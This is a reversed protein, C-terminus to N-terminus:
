IAKRTLEQSVALSYMDSVDQTPNSLTDTSASNSISFSNMAQILQDANSIDLTSGDHFEITEVKSSDYRFHDNIQIGKIEDGNISIKLNNGIKEFSLDSQSIGEGFVIKDNGGAETITDFGDGLNYIYTDDGNGGNLYDNGIGGILTDNGEGANITDHGGNGYIVDNHSTGNVTDDADTQQLTLGQTSLNFTSGDAFQLTEVQYNTGRYFDDILISQSVDDNITIRLDNGEQTFKLDDLAIGTGFKIKDNGRTESITDIGDGLNYIYTDRGYGGNLTDNGKGGTIVDDDDGANITDNGSGGIITDDYDTGNITMDDNRDSQDLTLGTESLYFVSNDAFHIEGIKCSDSSFFSEIIIGQDKDGNLYILLNNDIQTFSLNNQAIGEGFVIKNSGANDYITDLGDGLNYVYTDNDGGGDLTDNGAGGILVDDGYNGNITDNGGNGYITENSDTGNVTENGNGQQLTIDMQPLLKVSGDAFHLEELPNGNYYNLINIGQSTDGKITIILSYGNQTFTLDEPLIGTGFIIKDNGSTDSITDFGDGLNYFYTDNGSGANLTDNGKGGHIINNGNGANITDNGDGANITDSGDGANITVSYTNQANIIDDFSTGNITDGKSFQQDLTLGLAALNLSSGDAFCVHNLKADSNYLFNVLIIGQTEDNNIIIRLNNGESRFTLSDKTIGEGFQLKDINSATITDLDDGLNWIFTDADTGGDITDNGKGGVITDTGRGGSITDDGDEGYIIDNGDGGSITNNGKGGYITDAYDTGSISESRDGHHIILGSQQLSYVSGDAFIINEPKNNNSYFYDRCIVGQTMDGKVVIRLNNGEAYFTLDEFTIGEGFKLHDVDSFTVTDMDDGLNWIITDEGVGGDITDDGKGGNIIDAGKGGDIVDRGFGGYITDNYSTGDITNDKDTGQLVLGGKSLNITSGDAFELQEIKKDDNYFHQLIRISDNDNNSFSIFLDDGNRQFILDSSSIGEGFIIKDRGYPDSIVDYGDGLNYYYTDKDYGGNLTDNGKGGTIDNYGDGANITDNGNGGTLIDDDASGEIVQDPLSVLNGILDAVSVESGDAFEITGIKYGDNNYYNEIILGQSPDNNVIIRLNNGVQAFSLEAQTIDAGFKIKNTGQYDSITDIGDNLNWVYTDDGSGGELRDHGAGGSLIDNGNGGYLTDNGGNGYIVDDYDTGTITEACNYQDFTLGMESLNKTTGDAFELQEIRYNGDSIFNNIQIAKTKDDSLFILLSNNDGNAFKLDTFSIGEGFKIKDNGSSDSIIDYGDGLNYIYTDDGAGGNLTDNGIGGILADNGNQGNLTDNGTGGYITDNGSGANVTDDGGNAYIVDDYNTGTITESGDHQQFTLGIQTLDVTSGDAFELTEIGYSGSFYNNIKFGQTKDENVYVTLNNNDNEFSLDEFSIGEGFKIKDTGSSDSITDFGDGLNYIYIDNGSGGDLSDNGKGGVLTDNDGQGNLTDNGNGGYIADNGSGANVTDNGGNAYIVDDYATGTITESGDHQQFTLGIQTLDVTSGDAFELIEITYNSGYFYNNLQLGQTKDGNVYIILNNGSNEFSLDEFSIGEGFKIKDERGETSSSQYDSITDFGDGLNWVYTDNGYGGDLSDNGTGGTLIDNGSQGNLTDDGTGGYIIDNGNGANVTDNGGDAYIVDDYATGTITESGDHQQFTLGIQTLDVTSGDAFELIEITYNSGYFYNNLQLGQTKDGNVYIILNNGSNEFSLDEFSIGEGFKIKDELGETSSSQYDNITDFGDGLNWVYTDNGYGGDLSDNGKGGILIDNGKGAEITDNGGNGYIIDDYQTGSVDDYRDTQQFTFGMETLNKVTGDALELYEIRYYDSNFQNRLIVGQTRDGKVYIILDSGSREFTLDEFSIGQGFSVSDMRGDTSSSQYDEITDLGDGLNWIYTDNGYGGNLVDNGKGGILIDNGNEGKLTDNGAGGYITDDYKTGTVDDHGDTQQFTFGNEKLNFQSGDAFELYEISDYDSSFQSKIVIGQTIDNFLTIILDNGNQRFTLDSFKIGEGFKIKDNRSETSSNQYDSITDLGDGINYIYTDNGEGGNLQDNGKGGIIIDDGKGANVTDFGDNAYITDGFETGTVTEGINKQTLVLGIESLRIVVNDAFHLEEIKYDISSFFNKILVGQTESGDIMIRLDNGENRYVLKEPDIGRNFVIVDFNGNDSITDMGDGYNYYYSDNGSGGDIYDDGSGALITDNGSGASINDNGGNGILIDNGSGGSLSNDNDDGELTVGGDVSVPNQNWALRVDEYTWTTGDAFKIYKITNNTAGAEVFYSFVRLTNSGDKTSLILDNEQRKIVIDDVSVDSGFQITDECSSPDDNSSNDITDNGWGANFIYTDNGNGGILRDNGANGVLTDDGDNGYIVDNGSLGDIYDNGSTGNITDNGNTIYANLDGFNKLYTSINHDLNEGAARIADIIYPAVVSQEQILKALNEMIGLIDAPNEDYMTKLQEVFGSVDASIDEIENDYHVSIGEFLEKYHTQMDLKGMMSDRLDEFTKILILSAQQRPNSEENGLWNQNVYDSGWFEELAEIIRADQIYNDGAAARSEPDIDEVGTWHYIIDTMLNQRETINTTNLYQEVLQKLEGTKDSAMAEWLSVVNGFGQLNPLTKIDEPVDIAEYKSDATNRDFWIDSIQGTSGDTKTFTGEQKCTNGHEDSHDGRYNHDVYNLDVGTIGAQEMTLLEGDDVVGNSNGDKWVKVENWAADNQDFVNDNNSDLEKLAEFGNKAKEGNSLLTNNGFLETGNDIQSNGNIDRVLLGDDKGVWGTDESFGNNDHDFYIGVGSGLTEIGDGDLDVVLPSSQSEAHKKGDTTNGKDKNPEDPTFPPLGNDVPRYKGKEDPKYLNGEGDFINPPLNPQPDEDEPDEPEGRGKLIVERGSPTTFILDGNESRNDAIGEPIIITDNDKFNSVTDKGPGKGAIITDDDNDNGPDITNNGGKGNLVDKGTGGDLTDNNSGGTMRDDGAGGNATNNGDGTDIIDNGGGTSINDDGSGATVNDQANGGVYSNNGEGLDIDKHNNNTDNSSGSTVHDNAVGGTFKDDGGGLDITKDENKNNTDNTYVHDNGEGTSINDNGTGSYVIDKGIGGTYRDNGGGLHVTNENDEDDVMNTPDYIGEIDPNESGGDVIDIGDGGYFKDNGSGLFVKNVDNSDTSDDTYVIDDNGGTNITDNGQGSYVIDIGVGGTYVDNGAELHITNTDNTNDKLKDMTLQSVETYGANILDEKIKIVSGSGGDVVDAGSGGTYTDSGAGLIVLNDGSTASVLDKSLGGVYIDDGGGLSIDNVNSTTDEMIEQSIGTLGGTAGTGGDVIDAGDGGTFNDNGAGLYIHNTDNETNTGTTSVTDKANSGYYTDNGSGLNITKTSTAAAKTDGNLDIGYVIDNGKEANITDNGGGTYIIDAGDTGTMPLSTSHNFSDVKIAGGNAKQTESWENIKSIIQNINAYESYDLNQYTEGTNLCYAKYVNEFTENSSTLNSNNFFSEAGTAIDKIVYYAYLTSHIENIRHAKKWSTNGNLCYIKETNNWSGAIDESFGGGYNNQYHTINGEKNNPNSINLLKCILADFDSTTEEISGDTKVYECGSSLITNEKYSPANFITAEKGTVISMIGALHGGLSHGTFSLDDTNIVVFEDIPLENNEVSELLYYTYEDEATEIRLYPKEPEYSPNELKTIQLINEGYAHTIQQYYNYLEIFQKHAIGTAGLSADNLWDAATHIDTGAISITNEGTVLNKFIVLDLGNETHKTGIVEYNENLYEREANSFDAGLFNFNYGVDVDNVYAVKSLLSKIYANELNEM